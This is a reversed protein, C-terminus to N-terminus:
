NTDFHHRFCRFCGSVIGSESQAMWPRAASRVKMGVRMSEATVRYGLTPGERGHYGGVNSRTCVGTDADCDQLPARVPEPPKLCKQADLCPRLRSSKACLM